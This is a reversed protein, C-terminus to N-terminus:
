EHVIIYEIWGSVANDREDDTFTVAFQEDSVPDIAIKRIHHDHDNFRFDFGSLLRFGRIHKNIRSSKTFEFTESYPGTFYYISKEM